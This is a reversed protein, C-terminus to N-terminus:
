SIQARRWEARVDEVREADICRSALATFEDHGLLESLAWVAAGRVVASDDALLREADMALSADDSNGIAILVNRVFRDRGVRKIPSKSFMARFAADDLGALQALDPAQLEDRAALKSERGAQAFKNWPCAALCDDCGYIRNGLAQRFERPIPGKHEITLYSICRRADLQYPAPFAATPCIDLCAQCSGCHDREGENRPLELTTFIAGLFLWSGFERSVLNTHKGQWGLGSAQALPKEMVAATDVFVKVDGGAQAILWRALLKLRKKILDHYDDGRAYVSIAGRDRQELIALPNQGPGYNVGLMIVSRVDQWMERPDARRAPNDALWDMQGHAGADLFAELRQRVGAIADPATIGISDFGLAHAEAALAAGLDSSALKIHANLLRSGRLDAIGARGGAM